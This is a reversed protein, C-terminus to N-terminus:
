ISAYATAKEAVYGYPTIEKILYEKKESALELDYNNQL